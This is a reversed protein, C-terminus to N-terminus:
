PVLLKEVAVKSCLPRLMPWRAVRSLFIRTEIAVFITGHDTLVCVMKFIGVLSTLTCLVLENKLRIKLENQYRFSVNKKLELVVTLSLLILVIENSFLM